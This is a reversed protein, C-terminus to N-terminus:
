APVAAAFFQRLADAMEGRVPAGSIIVDVM